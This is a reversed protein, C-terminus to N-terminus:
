QRKLRARIKHALKEIEETKKVTAISYVFQTDKELDTKLEGSLRILERADEINKNHDAKLIEDKQLRGNPLRQDPAPQSPEPPPPAQALLLFVALAFLSVLAAVRILSSM